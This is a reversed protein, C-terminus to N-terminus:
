AIKVWEGNTKTFGAPPSDEGDYTVYGPTVGCNNTGPGCTGYCTSGVNCPGDYTYYNGTQHFVASTFTITRRELTVSSTAAAGKPSKAFLTVPTSMSTTINAGSRSGGSQVYVLAADYNSITFGTGAVHAVQISAPTVGRGGAAGAAVVALM